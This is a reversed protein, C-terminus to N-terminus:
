GSIRRKCTVNNTNASNVVTHLKAGPTTTGIGVNGTNTSNINGQGDPTTWQAVGPIASVTVVAATLLIGFAVRSVILRCENVVRSKLTM